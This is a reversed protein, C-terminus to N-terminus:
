IQFSLSNMESIPYLLMNHGFSNPWDPVALGSELGTVLGGTVLLIFVTAAAVVAFLGATAPLAIPSAGRALWGGFAALGASAAYLGAIYLVPVLMSGGQEDRLFAGIILTNAFASVLGVTIPSASARRAIAGFIIPVALTAAFLAEGIWLGPAMMSVYGIAWMSVTCAFGLVLHITSVFRAIGLVVLAGVAFLALLTPLSTAKAAADVAEQALMAILGHNM